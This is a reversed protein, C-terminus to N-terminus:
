TGSGQRSPTGAGTSAGDSAFHTLVAIGLAHGAKALAEKAALNESLDAARQTTREALLLKGSARDIMNIEARASCTTFNGIHAGMESLAEGAIVIDVGALTRPWNEPSQQPLHRAFDTLENDRVDQVQFGSATLLRKLETEVAPDPVPPASAIHREPIIVAVVPLKRSRLAAQLRPLPDAMIANDGVLQAANTALRQAIEDALKVAMGPVDARGDAKVM